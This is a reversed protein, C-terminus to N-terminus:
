ATLIAAQEVLASWTSNDIIGTQALHAAAQVKMV